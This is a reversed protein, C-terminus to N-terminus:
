LHFTLKSATLKRDSLIVTKFGELGSIRQNQSRQDNSNLVISTGSFSLIKEVTIIELIVDWQFFSFDYYDTM